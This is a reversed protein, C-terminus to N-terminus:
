HEYDHGEIREPRGARSLDRSVERRLRAAFFGDTGHRHPYVRFFGNELVTEPLYSTLDDLYFGSNERIFSKIVEEGEEHETSCSCYVIKGQPKLLSSVNRLINMQIKQFEGIIGEKKRWKGEPHRRLVGLGSCPADVLIRDFTGLNSLNSTSDAKKEKIIKIGLRETNERLLNLRGEDSDLAIIEGENGMIEAMHTTKGGMGACADLVREGKRPDLIPAILQAGEDQIQFWGRKYSNLEKIAHYGKIRIGCSSLPTLEADGVEERISELLNGRDIFLTNTRITLPPIENNAKCLAVTEEVGFRGIWRRVLWEPHSYLVSIHFVPDEEIQPLSIDERNRIINRLVANVFGAIGSHGHIKALGVSEDVAAWPPVRDLFLIQYVGMRLINRIWPDITEINREAQREIIWDIRGRHRQVGYVIEMVLSKDAPNLPDHFAEELARKAFEGKNEIRWLAELALHRATKAKAMTEM